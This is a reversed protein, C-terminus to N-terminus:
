TSRSTGIVGRVFKNSCAPAYGPRGTKNSVFRTPYMDPRGRLLQRFLKVKDAPTRPGATLPATQAPAPATLEEIPVMDGVFQRLKTRPVIEFAREAVMLLRGRTMRRLAVRLKETDVAARSV